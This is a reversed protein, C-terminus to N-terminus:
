KKLILNDAGQQVGLRFPWAKMKFHAERQLNAVEWPIRTARENFPM